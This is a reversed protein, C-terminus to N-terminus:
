LVIYARQKGSCKKLNHIASFSCIGKYYLLETFWNIVSNSNSNSNDALFSFSVLDFLICFFFVIIFKCFKLLRVIHWFEVKFVKLISLFNGLTM